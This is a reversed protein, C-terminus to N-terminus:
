APNPTPQKAKKWAPANKTYSPKQIGLPPSQRWSAGLSVGSPLIAQTKPDIQIPNPQSSKSYALWIGIFPLTM